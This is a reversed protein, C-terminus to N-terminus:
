GFTLFNVSVLLPLHGYKNIYHNIDGKKKSIKSISNSLKSITDVVSKVLQSNKPNRSYNDISLYSHEERYKESFPYSLEAKLNEEYEVLDDYLICRLEKDDFQYLATIEIFSAKDIYEEPSLSKGNENRKLIAM